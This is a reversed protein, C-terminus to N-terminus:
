YAGSIVFVSGLLAMKQELANSRRQLFVVANESCSSSFLIMVWSKDTTQLSVEADVCSAERESDCNSMGVFYSSLGSRGMSCSAQGGSSVPNGLGHSLQNCDSGVNAVEHVVILQQKTDVATQM